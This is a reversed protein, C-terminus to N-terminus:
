WPSRWSPMSMRTAVGADYCIKGIAQCQTATISSDPNLPMDDWAYVGGMMTKSVEVGDVACVFTKATVAGSPHRHCRMVQAAATAVCGCVSNNPTYYNYCNKGGVTSQDWTSQVIASVRIDAPQSLSSPVSATTGSLDGWEEAPPRWRRRGGRGRLTAPDRKSVKGNRHAQRRRPLDLNLMVWLPNRPDEVLTGSEAFAVVPEIRDDASAVVFGGGELEVVHFADEGDSKVTRVNRIVRNMRANMQAAPRHSLWRGVARRAMAGDVPAASIACSLLSIAFSLIASRARHRLGPAKCIAHETM